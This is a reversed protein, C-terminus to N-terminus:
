TGAPGVGAERASSQEPVAIWVLHEGVAAPRTVAAYYRRGEAREARAIRRSDELTALGWAALLGVVVGEATGGGGLVGILFTMMAAAGATLVGTTIAAWRRWDGPAALLHRPGTEMTAQPLRLSPLAARKLWVRLLPLFLIGTGGSVAVVVGVYRGDLGEDTTARFLVAVGLLLAASAVLAWSWLRALAAYHWLKATPPPM